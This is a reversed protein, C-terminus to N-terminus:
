EDHIVADIIIVIRHIPTKKEGIMVETKKVRADEDQQLQLRSDNTARAGVSTIADTTDQEWSM